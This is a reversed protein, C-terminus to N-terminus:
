GTLEAQRFFPGAQPHERIQRGLANQNPAEPVVIRIVGDADIWNIALMGRFSRELIRARRVFAEDDMGDRQAKERALSEVVTLRAAVYDQLRPATQEAAVYTALALHESEGRRLLAWIGLLTGGVLVGALAPLLLHRLPRM